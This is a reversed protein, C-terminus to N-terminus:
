SESDIVVSLYPTKTAQLRPMPPRMSPPRPPPPRLCPRLQVVVAEPPEQYPEQYADVDPWRENIKQCIGEVWQALGLKKATCWETLSHLNM